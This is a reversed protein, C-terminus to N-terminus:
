FSRIYVVDDATYTQSVDLRGNDVPAESMVPIWGDKEEGAVIFVADTGADYSYLVSGDPADYVDVKDEAKKRICDPLGSCLRWYFSGAKEGWYPDSAYNVNIGSNKDGFWSGAYVECDPNAYRKQLWDFAHSNICAQLDPYDVSADPNEDLAGHGFLNHRVLAYESTGYGSENMAVGLMMAANMYYSDQAADFMSASDYLASQDPSTIGAASALYSNVMDDTVTDLCRHPTFQYPDYWAEDNVSNGAIMDQFSKYFYHGDYSYYFTDAELFNPSECIAYSLTNSAAMDTCVQHVLSDDHRMYGSTVTGEEYFQLSIDDVDVWGTVGAMQFKVEFGNSDLYLGDAGYSGNLYGNKGSDLRYNTNQSVDKGSFVVLGNRIAVPKGSENEIVGHADEDMDDLKMKAFIFHHYTATVEPHEYDIVTFTGDETIKFGLWVLLIASIIGALIKLQPRIHRRRAKVHRKTM